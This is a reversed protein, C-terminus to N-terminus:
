QNVGQYYSRVAYWLITMPWLSRQCNFLIILVTTSRVYLRFTGLFSAAPEIRALDLLATM